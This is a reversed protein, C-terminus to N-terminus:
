SRGGRWTEKPAPDHGRGPLTIEDPAAPWRHRWEDVLWEKADIAAAREAVAKRLDGVLAVLEPNAQPAAFQTPAHGATLTFGTEAELTQVARSLLVFAYVCAFRTTDMGDITTPDVEGVANSLLKRAVSAFALADVTGIAPADCLQAM